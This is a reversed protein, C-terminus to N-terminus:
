RAVPELAADPPPEAGPGTETVTVADALTGRGVGDVVVTDASRGGVDDFPVALATAVGAGGSV